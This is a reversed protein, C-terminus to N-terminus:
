EASDAPVFLRRWAEPDPASVTVPERRTPHEFTLKAAHLAIAGHLTHASGYKRDGYISHGRLSLQV